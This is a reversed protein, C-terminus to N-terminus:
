KIETRGLLSWGDKAMEERLLTHDVSTLPLKGAMVEPYLAVVAEWDRNAACAKFTASGGIYIDPDAPTLKTVMGRSDDEGPEYLESTPVDITGGMDYAVVIGCETWHGHHDEFYNTVTGPRGECLVRQGKPYNKKWWYAETM